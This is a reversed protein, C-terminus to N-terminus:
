ALNNSCFELGHNYIRQFYFLDICKCMLVFCFKIMKLGVMKFGVLFCLMFMFSLLLFYHSFIVSLFIKSGVQHCIDPRYDDPNKNNKLLFNAHEDSNLLQYTQLMYNLMMLWLVLADCVYPCSMIYATKLLEKQITQKHWYILLNLWNFGFCFFYLM